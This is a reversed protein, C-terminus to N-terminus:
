SYKQYYKEPINIKYIYIYIDIYIYIYIYIYVAEGNRPLVPKKIFTPFNSFKTRFERGIDKRRPM